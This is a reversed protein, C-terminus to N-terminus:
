GLEGREFARVAEIVEAVPLGVVNTYSGSISKVMGAAGAQIGYGGAKDMPEGTEVYCHIEKESLTRFRVETQEAQEYHRENCRLAFATIVVHVRGSLRQLNAVAENKDAPKGLIRDGDVVVTDAALILRDPYLPCVSACKERAMRLVHQLPRENPLVTEDIDPSRHDCTFGAEALLQRRRPSSSALIMAYPLISMCVTTGM